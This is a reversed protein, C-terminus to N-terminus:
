ATASHLLLREVFDVIDSPSVPKQLVLDAQKAVESHEINHNGTIVIVRIDRTEPSQRLRYLVELGSMYPLDIDLLILNPQQTQALELGDPGTEATIINYDFRGLMDCYMKRLLEFDEIVLIKHAM